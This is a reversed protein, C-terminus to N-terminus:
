RHCVLEPGLVFEVVSFGHDELSDAVEAWTCEPHAEEVAAIIGTVHRYADHEELDEPVTVLRTQEPKRGPLVMLRQTM